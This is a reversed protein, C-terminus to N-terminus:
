IYREKIKGLWKNNEKLDKQTEIYNIQLFFGSGRYVNGTINLDGIISTDKLIGM